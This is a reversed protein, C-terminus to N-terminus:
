INYLDSLILNKIIIIGLLTFYLSYLEVLPLNLSFLKCKGQDSSKWSNNKLISIIIIIIIIISLQYICVNESQLPGSLGPVTYEAISPVWHEGRLIRM